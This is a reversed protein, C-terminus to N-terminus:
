TKLASYNRIEYQLANLENASELECLKKSTGHLFLRKTNGSLSMFHIPCNCVGNYCGYSYKCVKIVYFLFKYCKISRLLAGAM